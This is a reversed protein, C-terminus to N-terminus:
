KKNQKKVTALHEEIHAFDKEVWSQLTLGNGLKAHSSVRSWGEVPLARLLEILAEVNEVFGNLLESLSEKPDYHEAMHAEGDFNQFQPNDGLATRRARLGYVLENVDRTHVAIQHVNWGDKTLPVYPDKVALCQARFAKAMDELKEMLGKRYEELEKM